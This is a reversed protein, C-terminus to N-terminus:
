VKEDFENLSFDIINVKGLKMSEIKLKHNQKAFDFNAFICFDCELLFFLIIFECM